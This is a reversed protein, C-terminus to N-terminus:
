DAAGQVPGRDRITCSENYTEGGTEVSVHGTITEISKAKRAM